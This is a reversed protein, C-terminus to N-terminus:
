KIFKLLNSKINNNGARYKFLIGVLIYILITANYLPFTYASYITGAYGQLIGPNNFELKTNIIKVQQIIDGITGTIMLKPDVDNTFM